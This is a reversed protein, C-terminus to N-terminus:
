SRADAGCLVQVACARYIDAVVQLGAEVASDNNLTLLRELAAQCAPMRQREIGGLADCAAEDGGDQPSVTALSPEMCRAMCAETNAACAVECMPYLMQKMGDAYAIRAAVAAENAQPTEAAANPAALNQVALLVFVAIYPM